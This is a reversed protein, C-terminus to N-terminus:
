HNIALENPQIIDLQVAVMSCNNLLTKNTRKNMRNLAQTPEFGPGFFLSRSFSLSLEVM